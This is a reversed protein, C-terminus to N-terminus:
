KLKLLEERYHDENFDREEKMSDYMEQLYVVGIMEKAKQDGYRKSLTNYARRVYPIPKNMDSGELQNNVINMVTNRLKPDKQM